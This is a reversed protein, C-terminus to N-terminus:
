NLKGLIAIISDGDLMDKRVILGKFQNMNEKDEM